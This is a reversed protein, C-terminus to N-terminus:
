QLDMAPCAEGLADREAGESSPTGGTLWYTVMKGKGKVHVTGRERLLGAAEPWEQLLATRAEHSLQVRGPVGSSSEMRSATNVTDGYVNFRAQKSDTLSTVVPGVHIGCSLGIPALDGSEELAPMNTSAAADIAAMAMQALRRTHGRKVPVDVGGVVLYADGINGVKFLGHEKVLADLRAYLNNVLQVVAKTGVRPAIERLGVIDCFMVSASEFAEPLVERGARVRELVHAPLHEALLPPRSQAATGAAELTVEEIGHLRERIEAFKPRRSPNRMLCEQMLAALGSAWSADTPAPPGGNGPRLRRLLAQPSLDAHPPKGALLEHILAGFSYVDSMPTPPAGNLTEPACYPLLDAPAVVRDAVDTAWRANLKSDLWVSHANLRGHIGDAGQLENFMMADCIDLLISLCVTLDPRADDTPGLVGGSEVTTRLTAGSIGSRVVLARGDPDVAIGVIMVVSPHRMRSAAALSALALDSPQMSQYTERLVGGRGGGQPDPGRGRCHLIRQLLSSAGFSNFGPHHRAISAWVDAAHVSAREEKSGSTEAVGPEELDGGSSDSAFALQSTSGLSPKMELIASLAGRYKGSWLAADASGGADNRLLAAELAVDSAPISASLSAVRKMSAVIVAVAAAGAVLLTAALAVAVIVVVGHRKFFSDRARGDSPGTPGQTGDSWLIDDLRTLVGEFTPETDLQAITAADEIETPAVAEVVPPREYLRWALVPRQTATLVSASADTQTNLVLLTTNLTGTSRRFSFAQRAGDLSLASLSEMLMTGNRAVGGAKCSLGSMALRRIACAISTAQDLHPALAVLDAESIATLNGGLQLALPRIYNLTHGPRNISITLSGSILRHVDAFTVTEPLGWRQPLALPDSAGRAAALKSLSILYQTADVNHVFVYGRGLHGEDGANEVGGTGLGRAAATALLRVYPMVDSAGVIIYRLRLEVISDLLREFVEQNGQVDPPLASTLALEVGFEDAETGAAQAVAEGGVDSSFLLAARRAGAAHVVALMAVGCETPAPVSSMFFPSVTRDSLRASTVSTDLHPFTGFTAVLNIAEAYGTALGGIVAAPLMHPDPQEFLEQVAAEFVKDNAAPPSIREFRLEPTGAPRAANYLSEVHRYLQMTADSAIQPSAFAVGVNAGVAEPLLVPAYFAANGLDHGACADEPFVSADFASWQAPDDATAALCTPVPSTPTLRREPVTRAATPNSVAVVGLVILLLM